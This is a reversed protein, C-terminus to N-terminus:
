GITANTVKGNDISLNVRDRRYDCTGMFTEGDRNRIRVKMGLDTIKAKAEDETLGVLNKPFTQTAEKVKKKAAM